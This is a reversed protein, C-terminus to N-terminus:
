GRWISPPLPQEKDAITFAIRGPLISKWQRKEGTVAALGARAPSVSIRIAVPRELRPSIALQAAAILGAQLDPMDGIHSFAIRANSHGGPFLDDSM